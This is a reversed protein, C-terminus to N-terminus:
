LIEIHTKKVKDNEVYGIYDNLLMVFELFEATADVEEGNDIDEMFDCLDNIFDHTDLFRKSGWRKHLLLLQRDSQVEDMQLTLLMEYVDKVEQCYNM